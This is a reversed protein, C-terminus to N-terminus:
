ATPSRSGTWLSASGRDSPHSPAPFGPSRMMVTVAQGPDTELVLRTSDDSWVLPTGLCPYHVPITGLIEGQAEGIKWRVFRGDTDFYIVEAGDFAVAPRHLEMCGASFIHRLKGVPPVDLPRGLKLDWM